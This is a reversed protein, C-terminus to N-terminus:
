WTWATFGFGVGLFGFTCGPLLDLVSVCFTLGLSVAIVGCGLVCVVSAISWLLDVCCCCTFGM